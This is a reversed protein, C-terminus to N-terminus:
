CLLAVGEESLFQMKKRQLEQQARMEPSNFRGM